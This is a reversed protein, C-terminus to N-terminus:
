TTFKRSLCASCIDVTGLLYSGAHCVSCFGRGERRLNRLRERTSPQTRPLQYEWRIGYRQLRRRTEAPSLGLDLLKQVLRQIHKAVDVSAENTPQVTVHEGTV